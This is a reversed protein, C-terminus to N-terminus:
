RTYDNFAVATRRSEQLTQDIKSYNETSYDLKFIENTGESGNTWNGQVEDLANGNYRMTANYGANQNYCWSGTYFTRPTQGANSISESGAGDNYDFREIGQVCYWRYRDAPTPFRGYHWGGLIYAKAENGPANLAHDRRGTFNQSILQISEDLFDLREVEGLFNWWESVGCAIYGHTPSTFGSGLGKPRYLKSQITLLAEPLYMFRDITDYQARRWRVGGAHYGNFRGQLPAEAYRMPFMRFGLRSFAENGYSLRFMGWRWWASVGKEANGTAAQRHAHWVERLTIRNQQYRNWWRRHYRGSFSVPRAIEYEYVFKDVVSCIGLPTSPWHRYGDFWYGVKGKQNIPPEKKRGVLQTPLVKKLVKVQQHQSQAAKYGLSKISNLQVLSQKIANRRVEQVSGEIAEIGSSDTVEEGTGFSDPFLKKNQAM